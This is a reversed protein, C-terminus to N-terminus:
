RLTELRTHLLLPGQYVSPEGFREAIAKVVDKRNVAATKIEM